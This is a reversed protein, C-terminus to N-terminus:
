PGAPPQPPARRPDRRAELTRSRAELGRARSRARGRQFTRPVGAIVLGGGLARLILVALPIGDLSWVFFRVTTPAGNQLAFVAVAAALLAVLLYGVAM